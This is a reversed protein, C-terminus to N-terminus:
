HEINFYNNKLKRLKHDAPTYKEVLESFSKSNVTYLLLTYNKYGKISFSIIHFLNFFKFKCSVELENWPTVYRKGKYIFILASESFALGFEKGKNVWHVIYWVLIIGVISIIISTNIHYNLSYKDVYLSYIFDLGFYLLTLFFSKIYDYKLNEM